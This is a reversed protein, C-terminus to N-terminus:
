KVECVDSQIYGVQGESNSVKYRLVGQIDKAEVIISTEGAYIHGQIKTREENWMSWDDWGDVKLVLIKKGVLSDYNPLVVEQTTLSEEPEQGGSCAIIFLPLLLLTKKM